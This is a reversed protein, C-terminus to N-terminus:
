RKWVAIIQRLAEIVMLTLVILLVIRVPWVPFKIFGHADGAAFPDHMEKWVRYFITGAIFAALGSSVSDIVRRWFDSFREYLLEMRVHDGYRLCVPQGCFFLLLLLLTTVDQAWFLPASFVYRAVVDAGVIVAMAPTVVISMAGFVIDAPLQWLSRSRRAELREDVKM